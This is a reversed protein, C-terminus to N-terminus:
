KLFNYTEGYHLMQDIFSTPYEVEVDIISDGDMVPKLQPNIFGAYPPINLKDARRLVEAHLDPDVKVGYTEVLKQGAAFDGESKIRQIERLLQGFLERLKQYNNIVFYTKGEVVKKEIVNEKKGMEYAWSAVLQRNRMHDEEIDEGPNLRRLQLMLGNRIYSDYEAKAPEDSDMLGIEIMKPDMIFYLAVLDARAEELTSSYNQLTKHPQGVGPNVKGSAHGVVEHLATHLRSGLDGHNEAREREETTFTFEALLGKGSAKEYAHEINGLSISKSGYAERIWSSNPLNVGIPTSPSTAGAESVANIIKYTIGKVEQKKHEDMIPSHDEFWQAYEGVKALQESAELDRVQIVTEYTAKRSLPDDYTEIFGNIYDVDGETAQLWAINYADWTQLDGTEYYQILLGLANAQAENEAYVQAMKLNEVVKEIAPSYLGGVRYVQERLKGDEGKVLRSNIGYAVPTTDSPDEMANYFADVEKTTLGDGYFNVASAMVLDTSPDKSVQKADLDPDFIATKAEETLSSGSSTLLEELYERTFGPQFKKESYHHHIGSSFFVRRAYTYFEEWQTGERSGEYNKLIDEIARRIVLNHKYNQDWTIDRGSLGAQSLYYAYLRQKPTLKEWGPVQYRLIRIDAFQETQWQFDDKTIEEMPTADQTQPESCSSLLITGAILTTQIGKM